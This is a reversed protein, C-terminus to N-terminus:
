IFSHSNLYTNQVHYKRDAVTATVPSRPTQQTGPVPYTSTLHHHTFHFRKDEPDSMGTTQGLPWCIYETFLWIPFMESQPPLCFSAQHSTLYDRAMHHYIACLWLLVSGSHTSQLHCWYVTVVCMPPSTHLILPPSSDSVCGMAMRWPHLSPLTSLVSKRWTRTTFLSWVQDTRRHKM